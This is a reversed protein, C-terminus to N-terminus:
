GSMVEGPWEGLLRATACPWPARVVEGYSRNAVKCEGCVLDTRAPELEVGRVSSGPTHRVIPQHLAAVAAVRREAASRGKPIVLQVAPETTVTVQRRTTM